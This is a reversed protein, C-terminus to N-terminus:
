IRKWPKAKKAGPGKDPFKGDGGMGRVHLVLETGMGFALSAQKWGCNLFDELTANVM